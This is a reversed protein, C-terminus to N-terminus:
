HTRPDTGYPCRNKLSPSCMRSRLQKCFVVLPGMVDFGRTSGVLLRVPRSCVRSCVVRDTSATKKSGLATHPPRQSAAGPTPLTCSARPAPVIAAVALACCAYAPAAGKGLVIHPRLGRLWGANTQKPPHLASPSTGPLGVLCPWHPCRVHRHNAHRSARRAPVIAAAAPRPAARTCRQRAAGKCMLWVISPAALRRKNTQSCRPVGAAGAGTGPATLCPRNPCRVHTATDLTATLVAFVGRRRPPAKRRRLVGARAARCLNGNRRLLMKITAVARRAM